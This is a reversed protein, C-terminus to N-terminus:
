PAAGGSTRAGRAHSRVWETYPETIKRGFPGGGEPTYTRFYGCAKHPAPSARQAAVDQEGRGRAIEFILRMTPYGVRERTGHDGDLASFTM